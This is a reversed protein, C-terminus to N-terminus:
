LDRTWLINNYIINYKRVVLINYYKSYKGRENKIHILLFYVLASGIFLNYM